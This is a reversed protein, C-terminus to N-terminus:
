ACRQAGNRLLILPDQAIDRADCRVQVHGMRGALARRRVAVERLTKEVANPRRPLSYHAPDSTLFVRQSRMRLRDIDTPKPLMSRSYATVVAIPQEVLLDTWCQPCDAGESGHHPVKFFGARGQPREASSVIAQWGETTGLVHELDAGLMVTLVGIRLWLVVSLQNPGLPSPCRRQEIASLANRLEAQALNYVGDAPSLAFAEAQLAREAGTLALLKKNALAPIPGVADLREGKGRRDLLVKIIESYEKTASMPGAAENGLSVLRLLDQLPYAASTVFKANESTRFTEALGKIHDDHWHTAVVLKVRTAVEVGLSRLYALAIPTGSQRDICSDVVIWDGDGIHVVICEGVGPGFVSLELEHPAPPADSVNYSPLRSTPESLFGNWIPKAFTLSDPLDSLQSETESVEQHTATASPGIFVPAKRSCHSIARPFRKENWNSRSLHTRLIRRTLLCLSFGIPRSISSV